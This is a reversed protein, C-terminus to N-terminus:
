ENEKGGFRYIVKPDFRKGGLYALLLVCQLGLDGRPVLIKRRDNLKM